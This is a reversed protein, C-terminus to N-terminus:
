SQSWAVLGQEQGTVVQPTYPKVNVPQVEASTSKPPKTPANVHRPSTMASAVRRPTAVTVSTLGGDDSSLESVHLDDTKDADRDVDTATEQLSAERVKILRRAESM